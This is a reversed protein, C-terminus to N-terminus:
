PKESDKEFSIESDPLRKPEYPIGVYEMVRRLGLGGCDWDRLCYEYLKPHTLAMRQFRNPEKDLHAGFCCYACGTRAVGSLSLRGKKDESIDGYVSAIPVSYFRIYRLIDQETFISLPASRPHSGGFANCGNKQWSQRRRVSESALTGIYPLRGTEKEYKKLPEEKSIRCCDDSIKFPADALYKWRKYGDRFASPTGDARLGEFSKIAWEAGARYGKVIKAVDKTGVPYGYNEIVKRFSMRPKVVTVNGLSLAHAKVEPLDLGTDAYVAPTDPFQQRVLHLLVCSDKGGSVSVYTNGENRVHWELIRTQAILVKNEWPLSRLRKLEELSFKYEEVRAM